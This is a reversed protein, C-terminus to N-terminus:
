SEGSHVWPHPLLTPPASSFPLQAGTRQHMQWAGMPVSYTRGSSLQPAEPTPSFHWLPLYWCPKLFLERAITESLHVGWEWIREPLDTISREPLPTRSLAVDGSRWHEKNGDTFLYKYPIVSGEVSPFGDMEWEHSYWWLGTYPALNNNCSSHTELSYWQETMGSMQWRVAKNCQGRSITKAKRFLIPFLLWM